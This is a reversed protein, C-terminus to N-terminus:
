EGTMEEELKQSVLKKWEHKALHKVIKIPPGYYRIGDDITDGSEVTVELRMNILKAEM